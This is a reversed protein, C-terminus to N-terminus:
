DPRGSSRFLAIMLGLLGGLFIAATVKLVAQQSMPLQPPPAPVALRILEVDELVRSVVSRNLQGSLEVMLESLQLLKRKHEARIRREEGKIAELARGRRLRLGREELDSEQQLATLGAARELQIRELEALVEASAKPAAPAVEELASELVLLKLTLEDHLPNREETILSGDLEEVARGEVLMESLTEDSVAKELTLIRPTRALQSRVSAIEQLRSRIAEGSGPPLLRGVAEEMMGRTATSYAAVAEEAKRSAAAIRRDWGIVAEEERRALEDLRELLEQEAGEIAALTPDLQSGLLRESGAATGRFMSESLEVVTEAWRNVINAATEPRRDRALLVLFRPEPEGPRSVPLQPALADLERGVRLVSEERLVGEDILRATVREVVAESTALVRYLAVNATRGSSGETLPTLLLMANALYLTPVLFQLVLATVVGAVLGCVAILWWSRRVLSRIERFGIEQAPVVVPGESPHDRGAAPRGRDPIAM